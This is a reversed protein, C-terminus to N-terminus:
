EDMAKAVSRPFSSFVGVIVGVVGVLKRVAFTDHRAIRRKAMGATTVKIVQRPHTGPVLRSMQDGGAHGASLRRRTVRKAIM